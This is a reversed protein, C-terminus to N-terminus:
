SCKEAMQGKDPEKKNNRVEEKLKDGEEVSWRWKKRREIYGGFKIERKKRGKTRKEVELFSKGEKQTCRRQETM